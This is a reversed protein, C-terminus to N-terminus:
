EASTGATVLRSQFDTRPRRRLKPVSIFFHCQECPWKHATRRTHLKAYPCRFKYLFPFIVIMFIWRVKQKAAVTSIVWSATALIGNVFSM